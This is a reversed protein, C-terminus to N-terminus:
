KVGRLSDESSKNYNYFKIAGIMTMRGLDIKVTHDEGSNFPVLWMNRDDSTNNVGNILKDLTRHDQGHGPISNMDRPSADLNKIDLEVKKSDVDYVEIGNLGVYFLDGWSETVNLEIVRGKIGASRRKSAVQKKQIVKPKYDELAYNPGDDNFDDGGRMPPPNKRRIAKTQPREDFMSTPKNLAMQLEKVEDEGFKKTATM